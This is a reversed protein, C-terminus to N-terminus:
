FIELMVPREYMELHLKDGTDPHRAAAEEDLEVGLGPGAPPIISVDQWQIPQKLIEVDGAIPGCSLHPAIRAYHAETMGAIKKGDLIGIKM